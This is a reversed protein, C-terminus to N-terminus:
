SCETRGLQGSALGLWALGHKSCRSHVALLLTDAREAM